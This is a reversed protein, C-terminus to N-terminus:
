GQPLAGCRIGPQGPLRVTAFAIRRNMGARSTRRVPVSRQHSSARRSTRRHRGKGGARRLRQHRSLPYGNARRRPSGSPMGGVKSQSESPVAPGLHRPRAGAPRPWRLSRSPSTRCPGARGRTSVSDHRIPVVQIDLAPRADEPSEIRSQHRLQPRGGENGGRRNCGIPGRRRPPENALTGTMWTCCFPPSM